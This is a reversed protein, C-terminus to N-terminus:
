EPKPPEETPELRMGFPIKGDVISQWHAKVDPHPVVEKEMGLMEKAQAQLSDWCEQSIERFVNEKHPYLLDDYNIIRAGSTGEIGMYERIMSWGICSAQFGTIGGQDTKNIASQAAVMGATMAHVITGYDHEYDEVLHRIFGPLSELTQEKAKPLWEKHVGMEETIKKM